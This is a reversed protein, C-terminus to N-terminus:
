LAIIKDLQFSLSEPEKPRSSLHEAIRKFCQDMDKLASDTFTITSLGFDCFYDNRKGMEKEWSVLLEQNVSKQTKGKLGEVAMHTSQPSLEFGVFEMIHSNLISFDLRHKHDAEIGAYRLEPILFPESLVNASQELYTAYRDSIAKEYLSNSVRKLVSRYFTILQGADTFKILSNSDPDILGTALIHGVTWYDYEARRIESKDNRWEGDRLDPAIYLGWAMKNDGFWLTWLQDEPKARTREILNRYFNRHLFTFTYERVTKDKVLKLLRYSAKGDETVPGWKAEDTRDALVKLRLGHLWRAIFDIPSSFQSRVADVLENNWHGIVAHFQQVSLGPRGLVNSAAAIAIDRKAVLEATLDEELEALIRQEIPSVPMVM